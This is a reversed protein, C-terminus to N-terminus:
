AVVANGRQGEKRIAVLEGWTACRWVREPPGHRFARLWLPSLVAQLVLIGAALATAPGRLTSGELGIARGAGVFLGPLMTIGLFLGFGSGFLILIGCLAFGRFADLAVIRARPDSRRDTTPMSRVSHAM